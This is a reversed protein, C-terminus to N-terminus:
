KKKDGKFFEDDNGDVSPIEKVGGSGSGGSGYLEQWGFPMEDVSTLGCGVAQRKARNTARRIGMMNLFDLNKMTSMKVSDVGAWGEDRYIPASLGLRDVMQEIQEVKYDKEIAKMIVEQRMKMRENTDEFEVLGVYGARMDEKTARQICIYDIRKIKRRDKQIKSDLGTTNVYPKGGMITIGAIPLGNAEAQMSVMAYQKDSMEMGNIYEKGVEVIEKSAPKGKKKNEVLEGTLAENKKEVKKDAM